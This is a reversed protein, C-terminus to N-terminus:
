QHQDDRVAVGQSNHHWEAVRIAAYVAQEVDAETPDLMGDPDQSHICVNGINQVFTVHAYIIAPLAGQSRLKQALQEIMQRGPDHGCGKRYAQRLVVEVLYRCKAIALAPDIEAVRLAKDLEAKLTALEESLLCLKRRIRGFGAMQSPQSEVLNQALGPEGSQTSRSLHEEFISARDKLDTLVKGIPTLDALWRRSRDFDAEPIWKKEILEEPLLSWNLTKAEPIHFCFREGQYTLLLEVSARGPVECDHPCRPLRPLYIQWKRCSDGDALAVAKQKCAPCRRLFPIRSYALAGTRTFVRHLLGLIDDKLAFFLSRERETAEGQRVRFDGLDLLLLTQLSFDDADSPKSTM